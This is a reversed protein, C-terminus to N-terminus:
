WVPETIDGLIKGKLLPDHFFRHYRKKERHPLLDAVPKGYRCITIMAGKSEVDSLLKSLSTKAEHVNVSKM